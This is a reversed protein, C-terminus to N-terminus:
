FLPGGSSRRVTLGIHCFIGTCCIEIADARLDDDQCSEVPIINCSLSRTPSSETVTSTSERYLGPSLMQEVSEIAEVASLGTHPTRCGDYGAVEERIPISAVEPAVKSLAVFPRAQGHLGGGSIRVNSLITPV